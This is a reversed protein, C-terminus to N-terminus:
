DPRVLEQRLWLPRDTTIGNVGADIMRQALKPDNVTWVYLELGEKKVRESLHIDVFDCAQLDLGDLKHKTAAAILEDATHNWTMTKADRKMGVIWYTKLAPLARKSAACVDISFSIVATQSEELKAAAVVRALEPVIEPGCKVEIFIKYGKPVIALVDALLPLKEGAFKPSKWSGADLKQLEDATLEDIKKDVGTTRKLNRDHCCVIKGDKSLYVDLEVGEAQQEWGLKFAAITNEPADHSAGRHAIFEIVPELAAAWTATGIAGCLVVAALIRQFPKM